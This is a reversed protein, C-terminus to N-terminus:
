SGSQEPSSRPSGFGCSREAGRALQHLIMAGVMLGALSLFHEVAVQVGEHFGRQQLLDHLVRRISVRRFPRSVIFVAFPSFSSLALPLM